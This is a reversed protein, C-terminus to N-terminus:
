EMGYMETYRVINSVHFDSQLNNPQVSPIHDNGFNHTTYLSSLLCEDDNDPSGLTHSCSTHQSLQEDEEEDMGLQPVM